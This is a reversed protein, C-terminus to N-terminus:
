ENKLQNRLRFAARGYKIHAISAFCFLIIQVVGIFYTPKILAIVYIAVSICSMLITIAMFWDLSINNIQGNYENTASRINVISSSYIMACAISWDGTLLLEEYKEMFVKVLILVLFPTIIFLYSTGVSKLENQYKM